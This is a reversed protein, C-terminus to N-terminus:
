TLTRWQSVEEQVLQAIRSVFRRAAEDPDCNQYEKAAGTLYLFKETQLAHWVYGYRVYQDRWSSISPFHARRGGRLTVDSRVRWQWRVCSTISYCVSTISHCVSRM